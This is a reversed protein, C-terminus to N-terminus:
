DSKTVYHANGQIGRFLVNDSGENHDVIWPSSTCDMPALTISQRTRNEIEIIETEMELKLLTLIM